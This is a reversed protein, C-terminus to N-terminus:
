KHLPKEQRAGTEVTVSSSAASSLTQAALWVYAIWISDAVALHLIQLWLPTGLSVNLLGLGLQGLTLAVLWKVLPIAERLGTGLAMVGAAVAAVALIPHVVRVRTLFHEAEASGAGYVPFLTDALATVAGTAFIMVLAAAGLVLWRKRRVPVSLPRSGLFWATVTLAALLLLTNVLHLPVAVVRAASADRDVWEYAVIVAGILAEGVVAAAAWVVSRRAPHASPTKGFVVWVLWGVLVLAVGSAVRHTFEVATAGEMAPLLQGDCTPWSRGCGAGSHTARVVAGLLITVVNWGIVGWALRTPRDM